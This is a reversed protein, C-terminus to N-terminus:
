QKTLYHTSDDSYCYITVHTTDTPTLKYLKQLENFQSDTFIFDGQRFFDIYVSDPNENFPLNYEVYSGDSKNTVKFYFGDLSTWNGEYFLYAFGTPGSIYKEIEEYGWYKQLLGIIKDKEAPTISAQQDSYEKMLDILQVWDNIESNDSSLFDVLAKWKNVRHQEFLTYFDTTSFPLHALLSNTLLQKSNEDLTVTDIFKLYDSYYQVQM